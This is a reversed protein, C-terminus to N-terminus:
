RVGQVAGDRKSRGARVAPPRHMELARAFGGIAHVLQPGESASLAANAHRFGGAVSTPDTRRVAFCNTVVSERMM